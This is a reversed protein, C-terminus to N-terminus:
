KLANNLYEVGIQRLFDLRTEVYSWEIPNDIRRFSSESMIRNELGVATLVTYFRDNMGVNETTELVITFPVHYLLAVIMGHFSNTFLYNSGKIAKIWEEITESYIVHKNNDYIREHIYQLRNHLMYILTGDKQVEPLGLLADYDDAKLLITPDPVVLADDRGMAKVIDIGTKERVSVANFKGLLGGALPLLESPYRTTGFSVAYTLRKVYNGGFDLFYASSGGREGAKLFSPNMVQDSGSILVDYNSCKNKLEDLAFYRKSMKLYRDRFSKMAKEKKLGILYNKLHFFQRYRVFSYVSPDYQRPKYNIIEVDHRM